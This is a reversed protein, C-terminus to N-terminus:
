CDHARDVVCATASSRASENRLLLPAGDLGAYNVQIVQVMKLGGELGDKRNFNLRGTLVWALRTEQPRGLVRISFLLAQIAGITMILSGDDELRLVAM